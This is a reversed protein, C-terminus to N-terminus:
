IYVVEIILLLLLVIEIFSSIKKLKLSFCSFLFFLFTEKAMLTFSSLFSLFVSNWYKLSLSPYTSGTHPVPACNVQNVQSAKGQPALNFPISLLCIIYCRLFVKFLCSRRGSSVFGNLAMIFEYTILQPFYEWLRQNININTGLAYYYVIFFVILCFDVHFYFQSILSLSM